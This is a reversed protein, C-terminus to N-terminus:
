NRARLRACCRAARVVPTRQSPRQSELGAAPFSIAVQETVVRWRLLEATRAAPWLTRVFLDIALRYCVTALAPDYRPGEDRMFAHAANFEHWQFHIGADSMANYILARGERIADILDNPPDAM